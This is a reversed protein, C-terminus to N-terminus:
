RISRSCMWVSRGRKSEVDQGDLFSIAKNKAKEGVRKFVRPIGLIGRPKGEHKKPHPLVEPGQGRKGKKGKV